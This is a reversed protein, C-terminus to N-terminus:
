YSLHLSCLDTYMDKREEGSVEIDIRRDNKNVHATVFNPLVTLKISKFLVIVQMYM